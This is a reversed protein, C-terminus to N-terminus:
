KDRLECRNGLYSAVFIPVVRAKKAIQIPFDKFFPFQNEAPVRKRLSHITLNQYFHGFIKMGPIDLSSCQVLDSILPVNKPCLHQFHFNDCSLSGCSKRESYAMPFDYKM